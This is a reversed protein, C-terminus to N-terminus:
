QRPGKLGVTGGRGKYSKPKKLAQIANEEDKAAGRNSWRGAAHDNMYM